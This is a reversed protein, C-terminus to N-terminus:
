VPDADILVFAVYCPEDTRNSWAHNTGRQILVDGAKLLVEGETFDQGRPRIHRAAGANKVVVAGGITETDEQIVITDAGDPVPAGTFIRACTGPELPAPAQGAFIRQSVRLPEGQWDDLRLAYGDMTSADFPPLDTRAVLDEALARGLADALPVREPRLPAVDALASLIRARAAAPTLVGCRYRM